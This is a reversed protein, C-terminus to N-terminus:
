ASAPSSALRSTKRASSNSSLPAPTASRGAPKGTVATGRAGHVVLGRNARGAERLAETLDDGDVTALTMGHSKALDVAFPYPEAIVYRGLEELMAASRAKPYSM